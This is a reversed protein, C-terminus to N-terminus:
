QSVHGDELRDWCVRGFSSRMYMYVQSDAHQFADKMEEKLPMGDKRLYVNIMKITEQITESCYYSFTAIVDKAAPHTVTCSCLSKYADISKTVDAGGFVPAGMIGPLPM